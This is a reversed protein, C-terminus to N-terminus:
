LPSGDEPRAHRARGVAEVGYAEGANIKVFAMLTRLCPDAVDRPHRQLVDSPADYRQPAADAHALWRERHPFPKAPDAAGNRAELFALYAAMPGESGSEVADFFKM